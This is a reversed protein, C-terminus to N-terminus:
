RCKRLVGGMWDSHFMFLERNNYIAYQEIHANYAMNGSGEVVWYCGGTIMCLVKAHVNVAGVRVRGKHAAAMRQLDDYVEGKDSLRYMSDSVIVDLQRIEGTRVLSHMWTVVQGSVNFTCLMMRECPGLRMLCVPFQWADWKRDTVLHTSQGEGPLMGYIQEPKSVVGCVAVEDACRVAMTGGPGAGAAVGRRRDGGVQSMDFVRGGGPGRAREAAAGGDCGGSRRGVMAAGGGAVRGAVTLGGAM